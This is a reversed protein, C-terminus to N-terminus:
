SFLVSISTATSPVLSEFSAALSSHGLNPQTSPLAKSTTQLTTSESHSHIQKTTSINSTEVSNVITKSSTDIISVTPSAKSFSAQTPNSLTELPRMQARTVLLSALVLVTAYKM